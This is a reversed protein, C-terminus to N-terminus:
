GAVEAYLSQLEPGVESWDYRSARQRCRDELSLDPTRDLMALLADACAGVDDPAFLAGVSPDILEPLAGHAAAVVPTGAALSELVVMGFAENLSPLCTLAASAYLRRLQLEDLDGAFSVRGRVDDPVRALLARRREPSAAGALVLEISNPRRRSAAVVADVLVDVRKRADDPTATCVILGPQRTADVRYSATDIGNPIVKATFGYQDRLHRAAAESPCLIARAGSSALRFLRRRVPHGVFSDRLAIGGYSVVYPRRALRAAAADAYLFSHVVQPRARRLHRAMAPVFTTDVDLDRHLWTADRARLRTVRVGDALTSGSSTGGSVIEVEHGRDHLWRALSRVLTESGRRVDPWAFPNTLCVSDARTDLANM